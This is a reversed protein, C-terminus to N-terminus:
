HSRGPGSGNVWGSRHGLGGLGDPGSATAACGLTALPPLRDGKEEGLNPSQKKRRLEGGTETTAGRGPLWCSRGRCHPSSREVMEKLEERRNTTVEFFAAGGALPASGGDRKEMEPSPKEQSGRTEPSPDRGGMRAEERDRGFLSEVNATMM